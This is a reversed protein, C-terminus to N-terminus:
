RAFEIVPLERWAAAPGVRRVVIGGLGGSVRRGETLVVVVPHGRRRLALLEAAVSPDLGAAVVVVTSGYALRRAGAAIVQVFPRTAFPELRALAELVRSLQGPAGSSDVAVRGLHGRHMGNTMLGVQYDQELAWSAISATTCIALELADSDYNLSWWLGATNLDLFLAIQHSTTAEFVKVQLRQSRASAGWHIRRSSDGPRLERAGIFRSPDEFLWSRSRLDGLPQRAPLGLKALPVVRPYVILSQSEPLDLERSVLGFLDGTRLRVPGFVHEGRTQCPLVYRRRVREFPRLAILNGLIARGAKHSPLLQGRPIPLAKPAEDEIELWALPLIKRNVIEIELEVPEGFSVRRRSFRRRYELGVLCYREWVKSLGAALLLALSLLFLPGQRTLLGLVLVFTLFTMTAPGFM